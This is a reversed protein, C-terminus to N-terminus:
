RGGSQAKIKKEREKQLNLYDQYTVQKTKKSEAPKEIKEEATLDRLEIKRAVWYREGSNIDLALIGGPLTNYREPGVFARIKPTYWATVELPKDPNTTDTYYALNCEYGLINRTGEGFKWQAMKITDSILYLQGLFDLQSIMLDSNTYYQNNNTGMNVTMRMASGSMGPMSNPRDEFYSKYLSESPNFYLRIMNSSYQDIQAKLSAMQTAMQPNGAMQAALMKHVDVKEEYRIYGSIAQSFLLTSPSCLLATVLSLIITSLKLKNM